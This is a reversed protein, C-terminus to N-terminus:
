GTVKDRAGTKELRSLRAEIGDLVAKLVGRASLTGHLQRQAKAAEGREGAQELVRTLEDVRGKFLARARDRGTPTVTTLVLPTDPYRALLANVLPASAQVEGVSVAHVWVGRGRVKEGLGFRQSFGDWHSRDRFGRLAMAGLM